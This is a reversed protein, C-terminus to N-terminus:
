EHPSSLATLPLVASLESRLGSARVSGDAVAEDWLRRGTALGLWTDGDCEVINPPTGRTHRPGTLCQVVGFPPVRVECTRGPHAAALEELTFRVAAARTARGVASPDALWADLARRGEDVDIRRRAPM